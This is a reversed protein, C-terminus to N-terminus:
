LFHYTFTCPYALPQETNPVCIDVGDYDQIFAKIKRKESDHMRSMDFRRADIAIGYLPVYMINVIGSARESGFHQVVQNVHPAIIEGLEQEPVGQSYDNVQVNYTEGGQNKLVECQVRIQM